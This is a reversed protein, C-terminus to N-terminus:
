RLAARELLSVLAALEDVADKGLEVRTPALIAADEIPAGTARVEVDLGFITRAALAFGRARDEFEAIAEVVMGAKRARDVAAEADDRALGPWRVNKPEFRAWSSLEDEGPLLVFRHPRGLETRREWDFYEVRINWDEPEPLHFAVRAEGGSVHAVDLQVGDTALELSISVVADGVALDDVRMSRPVLEGRLLERPPPPVVPTLLVDAPLPETTSHHSRM